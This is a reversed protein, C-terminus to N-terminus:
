RTLEFRHNGSQCRAIREPPGYDWYGPMMLVDIFGDLRGYFGGPGPTVVASGHLALHPGGGGSTSDYLAEFISSPARYPDTGYGNLRFAVRHPEVTGSFGNPVPLTLTVHSGRQVATSFYTRERTAAPLSERCEPAAEIRLTYTGDLNLIPIITPLEFAEARHATVLVRRTQTAYGDKTIRLEVEGTVGYFAFLGAISVTELTAAGGTVEVRAGDLPAGEHSVTGALRFTGSPLVFQQRSASGSGSVSAPVATYRASITTEGRQSGASVVGASSITILGPNGNEWRVQSTVDRSSGDSFFATASLKVSQGPPVSDPGGIELRSVTSILSPSSGVEGRCALGALGLVLVALRCIFPRM